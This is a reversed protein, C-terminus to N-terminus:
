GQDSEGVAVFLEHRDTDHTLTITPLYADEDSPDGSDLVIEDTKAPPDVGHARMIEEPTAPRPAAGYRDKIVMSGHIVLDADAVSEMDPELHAPISMIIKYDPNSM